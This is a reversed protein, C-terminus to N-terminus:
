FPLGLISVNKERGAEDDRSVGMAGYVITGLERRYARFSAPLPSLERPNANVEALLAERLREM